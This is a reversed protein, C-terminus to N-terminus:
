RMSIYKHIFYFSLYFGGYKEVCVGVGVGTYLYIYPRFPSGGSPTAFEFVLVITIPWTHVYTHTQEVYWISM